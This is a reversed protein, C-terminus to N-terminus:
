RGRLQAISMIGDLMARKELYNKYFQFGIAFAAEKITVEDRQIPIGAKRILVAAVKHMNCRLNQRAQEPLAHLIYM